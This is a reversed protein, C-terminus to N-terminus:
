DRFSPLSSLCIKDRPPLLVAKDELALVFTIAGAGNTGSFQSEYQYEVFSLLFM